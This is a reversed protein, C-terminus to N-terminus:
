ERRSQAPQTPDQPSPNVAGTIIAAVAGMVATRRGQHERIRQSELRLVIGSNNRAFQEKAQAPTAVALTSSCFGSHIVRHMGAVPSCMQFNHDDAEQARDHDGTDANVCMVRVDVQPGLWKDFGSLGRDDTPLQRYEVLESTLRHLNSADRPGDPASTHSHQIDAKPPYLPSRLNTWDHDAQSGFRVDAGLGILGDPQFRM